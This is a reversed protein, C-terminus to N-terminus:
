VQAARELMERAHDRAQATIEIGGVMRAIENCRDHESLPRVSVDIQADDGAKEVLLHQQGLAAVSALHTICLVQRHRGLARLMQGVIAAIRGGIGVDVEDFILTPILTSEAAVVHIALSIRSLEGGSAVKDLPLLPQGRHASVQFRIREGGHKAMRETSVAEFLIEFRAGTMGLKHLNAAVQKELRHAAQRRSDSLRAAAADYQERAAAVEGELQDLRHNESTQESLQRNLTQIHDFLYEPGVNHRRSLEYITGIRDEVIRLREPDIDLTATHRRLEDSAERLQISANELLSVIDLLSPDIHVLDRLEAVRNEIRSVIATSDEDYLENVVQECTSRLENAHSLRQHEEDLQQWEGQVLNLGEFDGIQFRLLKTRAEREEAAQKSQQWQENLQHWTRHSRSVDTVLDPHRAYDDLLLLQTDRRLLAHHEHQGHIDILQEGLERLLQVTVPIANIYARSRGERMIVRRIHCESDNKLDHEQLWEHVFSHEDLEFGAHIEAQPCHARIISADARDGLALGLADILISKGAGTEGTVVTMGRKFEVELEDVIAVNRIHIYSLVGHELNRISFDVVSV